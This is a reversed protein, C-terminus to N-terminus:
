LLRTKGTLLEQCMGTKLAKTKALRTELTTIDTDMDTLIAAIATQEEITQPLFVQMETLTDMTIYPTNGANVEVRIREQLNREM